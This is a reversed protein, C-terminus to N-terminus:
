RPVPLSPEASLEAVLKLWRRKSSVLWILGAWIPLMFGPQIWLGGYYPRLGVLLALSVWIWGTWDLLNRALLLTGITAVAPVVVLFSYQEQRPNFLGVYCVSLVFVAFGTARASRWSSVRLALLLALLAAVIRIALRVTSNLELGLHSFFVSFDAQAYWNGPAVDTIHWLQHLYNVYETSMYGWPRFGYPLALLAFAAAALPARSRPFVAAALLAMVIGLPKIAIGLVLWISMERYRAQMAAACGAILSATMAIQFQLLFFSIETALASLGLIVGALPLPRRRNFVLALYCTSAGLMGASLIGVLVAATPPSIWTLPTTLVLTAPLYHFGHLEGPVYVPESAWFHNIAVAYEVLAGFSQGSAIMDNIDSWVPLLASALWVAGLVLGLIHASFDSLAWAPRGLDTSRRILLFQGTV